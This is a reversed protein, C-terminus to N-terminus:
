YGKPRKAGCDYCKADEAQNKKGCVPCFWMKLAYKQETINEGCGICFSANGPNKRGCKPCIIESVRNRSLSPFIPETESLMASLILAIFSVVIWIYAGISLKDLYEKLQSEVIKGDKRIAMYQYLTSIVGLVGLVELLSFGASLMWSDRKSEGLLGVLKMIHLIPVVALVVLCLTLVLRHSKWMWAQDSNAMRLARERVLQLVKWSNVGEKFGLTDGEALVAIRTGFALFVNILLLIWRRINSKEYTEM